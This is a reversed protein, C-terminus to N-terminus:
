GGGLARGGSGGSGAGARSGRRGGRRSDRVALAGGADREQDGLGAGQLLAEAILLAGGEDELGEGLLVRLVVLDGEAEAAEVAAAAAEGLPDRDEAIAEVVEVVLVVVDAAPDGEGERLDELVLGV